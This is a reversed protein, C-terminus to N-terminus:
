GDRRRLVRFDGGSDDATDDEDRARHRGAPRSGPPPGPDVPPRDGFVRRDSDLVQDLLETDGLGRRVVDAQARAACARARAITHTVAASLQEPTAQRAAAGFTVSGVSGDAGAVVTVLGDPTSATGTVQALEEAMRRYAEAGRRTGAAATDIAEIRRLLQEGHESM